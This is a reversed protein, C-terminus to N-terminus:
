KARTMISTELNRIKGPTSMWGIIRIFYIRHTTPLPYRCLFQIRLYECFLRGPINIADHSPFCTQDYWNRFPSDLSPSIWACSQAKTVTLSIFPQWMWIAPGYKPTKQQHPGVAFGSDNLRAGFTRLRPNPILFNQFALHEWLRKGAMESASLCVWLICMKPLNQLFFRIYHHCLLKAAGCLSKTLITIFYKAKGLFIHLFNTVKARPPALGGTGELYPGTYCCYVIRTFVRSWYGHYSYPGWMTVLARWVRDFNRFIGIWPMASNLGQMM